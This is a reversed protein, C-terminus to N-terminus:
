LSEEKVVDLIIGALSFLSESMPFNYGKKGLNIPTDWNSDGAKELCVVRTIGANIIEKACCVCPTGCFCYLTSNNTSIGFKAAQLIPNIEAHIAVCHEMGEGSKFGMRQRPCKNSVFKKTYKGSNDRRDCHPVEKPPGNYGTSIIHNDIVLVAGIKRSLCKSQTSELKAMTMFHIDRKIQREKLAGLTYTISCPNKNEM